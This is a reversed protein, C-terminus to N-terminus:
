KGSFARLIHSGNEASALSCHSFYNLADSKISECLFDAPRDNQEIAVLPDAGLELLRRTAIGMGSAIEFAAM